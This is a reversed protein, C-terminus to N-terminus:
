YIEKEISLSQIKKVLPTEIIFPTFLHLLSRVNKELKLTSIVDAVQITLPSAYYNAYKIM